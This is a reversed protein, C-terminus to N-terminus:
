RLTLLVHVPHDLKHLAHQFALLSMGRGRRGSLSPSPCRHLGIKEGASPPAVSTRNRKRQFLVTREVWTKRNRKGGQIRSDPTCTNRLNGRGEPRPSIFPPM